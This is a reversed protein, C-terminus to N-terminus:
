KELVYDAVAKSGPSGAHHPDESLIRIYEHLLATDPTVRLVQELRTLEELADQPFGRVPPNQAALNAPILGIM